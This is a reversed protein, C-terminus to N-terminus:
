LVTSKAVGAPLTSPKVITEARTNGPTYDQVSVPHKVTLVSADYRPMSLLPGSYSLLYPRMGYYNLRHKVPRRM